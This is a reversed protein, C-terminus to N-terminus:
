LDFFIDKKKKKKKKKVKLLFTVRKQLLGTGPNYIEWLFPDKFKAEDIVGQIFSFLYVLVFIM